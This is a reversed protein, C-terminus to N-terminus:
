RSMNITLEPINDDKFFDDGIGYDILCIKGNKKKVINYRHIDKHIFGINKLENFCNIIDSVANECGFEKSVEILFDQPLNGFEWALVARQGFDSGDIYELSKFYEGNVTKESFNIECNLFNLMARLESGTLPFGREMEIIYIWELRDNTKYRHTSLINIINDSKHKSINYSNIADEETITFKIVNNDFIFSIGFSGIKKFKANKLNFRNSLKKINNELSQYTEQLM